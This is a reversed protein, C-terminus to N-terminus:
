NSIIKDQKNNFKIKKIKNTKLIIDICKYAFSALIYM